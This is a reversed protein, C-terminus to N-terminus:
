YPHSALPQLSLQELEIVENMGIPQNPARDQLLVVQAGELQKLHQELLAAAARCYGLFVQPKMQRGCAVARDATLRELHDLTPQTRRRQVAVQAM